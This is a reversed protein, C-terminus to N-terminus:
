EKKHTYTPPHHPDLILHVLKCMTVRYHLATVLVERTQHKITLLSVIDLDYHLWHGQFFVMMIFGPNPM